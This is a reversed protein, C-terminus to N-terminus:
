AKSSPSLIILLDMSHLTNLHVNWDSVFNWDKERAKKLNFRSDRAYLHVHYEGEQYAHKFPDSMDLIYNVISCVPRDVTLFVDHVLEQGEEEKEKIVVRIHKKNESSAGNRVRRFRVKLMEGDLIERQLNRVECQARTLRKKESPFEIFPLNFFEGDRFASIGLPRSSTPVEEWTWQFANLHFTECAELFVDLLFGTQMNMEFVRSTPSKGKQSPACCDVLVTKDDDEADELEQALQLLRQKDKANM